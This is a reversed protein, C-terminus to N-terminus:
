FTRDFILFFRYSTYYPDRGAPLLDQHSYIGRLFEADLYVGWDVNPTLRCGLGWENINNYYEKAKISPDNVLINVAWDRAFNLKGYVDMVTKSVELVRAGAKLQLYGITNKYKSYAGLSSYLDLIPYFPFRVDPHDTYPAYIGNGYTLYFRFDNRVFNIDKRGIIDLAAGEQASVSFGTFLQARVGVGFMLSNDSFIQPVTGASSKTDTSLSVVAYASLIRNLRYGEEATLYIFTSQWRTDFYDASYIRTWWPKAPAAGGGGGGSSKFKLQDSASMRIDPYPSAALRDFLSYAATDQGLSMLTYAMQLKLTDSPQLHDAASFEKLANPYDKLSHYLYGLAAHAQFNTSDLEIVRQFYPVAMPPDVRM